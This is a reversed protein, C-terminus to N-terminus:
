QLNLQWTMLEPAWVTSQARGQPALIGIMRTVAPGMQGASIRMLRETIMQERGALALQVGGLNVGTAEEPLANADNEYETVLDCILENAAREIYINDIHVGASFSVAFTGTQTLHDKWLTQTSPWPRPASVGDASLRVLNWGVADSHLAYESPDLEVGDIWVKLVTPSEDGLPIGDLGCCPCVASCAYGIRCPRALYTRRGKVQLGSVRAIADSAADILLLLEDDGVAEISCCGCAPDDRVSEITTMRESAIRLTV